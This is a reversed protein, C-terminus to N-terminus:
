FSVTLALEPTKYGSWKLTADSSLKFEAYIGNGAFKKEVYGLSLKQNIKYKAITKYWHGTKGNEFFYIASVRNKGMWVWGGVRNGGTERGAGLAFQIEPRPSYTLGGYGETWYKTDMVYIFAGTKQNLSQEVCLKTQAKGGSQAFELTSASATISIALLLTVLTLLYKM